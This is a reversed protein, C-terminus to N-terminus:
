SICYRETPIVVKVVARSLIQSLDAIVEDSVSHKCKCFNLNVCSICSFIYLFFLRTAFPSAGECLFCSSFLLLKPWTNVQDFEDKGPDDVEPYPTGIPPIQM